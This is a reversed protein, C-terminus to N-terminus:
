HAPVTGAYVAPDVSVQNRGSEKAAYLAQDARRLWADSDEDNRLEAIGISVTLGSTPPFPASAVRKRIAEALAVADEGSTNDALIVFEEGGFRYLSDTQRLRTKLVDSLARLVRDGVAHGHADNIQKYHDLDLMLMSVPTQYRDLRHRAQQLAHDLSLRSGAGTLPDSHLLEAVEDTKRELHLSFTVLFINVLTYSLAFRAVYQTEGPLLSVVLLCATANLLVASPWRVIFFNAVGSAFLWFLAPSGVFYVYATAGGLQVIAVIHASLPNFGQRRLLVLALSQTLVVPTIVLSVLSNGLFFHYIGFPVAVCISSICLVKLVRAYFDTSSDSVSFAPNVPATM